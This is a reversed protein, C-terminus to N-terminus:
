EAKTQERHGNGCRRLCIKFTASVGTGYMNGGARSSARARTASHQLVFLTVVSVCSICVALVAAHLYVHGATASNLRTSLASGSAGQANSTRRCTEDPHPLTVLRVLAGQVPMYTVLQCRQTVSHLQRRRCAYPTRRGLQIMYIRLIACHLEGYEQEVACRGRMCACVQVALVDYEM